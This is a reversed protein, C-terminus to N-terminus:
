TRTLVPIYKQFKNQHIRKCATGRQQLIDDMHAAAHIIAGLPCMCAMDEWQQRGEGM